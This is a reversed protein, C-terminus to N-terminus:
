SAYVSRRWLVHGWKWLSWFVPMLLFSIGALLTSGPGLGLNVFFAHGFLPFVSAVTSCFLDNGALVLTAYVPYACTVYTLIGQFILYIGPLYLSAGIVPVIWHISEKATFRFILISMLIFISAM